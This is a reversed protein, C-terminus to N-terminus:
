VKGLADEELTHEFVDVGAHALVLNVRHNLAAHHYRGFKIVPKVFSFISSQSDNTQNYHLNCRYPLGIRYPRCSNAFHPFTYQIAQLTRFLSKM